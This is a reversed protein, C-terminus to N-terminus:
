SILFTGDSRIQSNILNHCSGCIIPGVNSQLTATLSNMCLQILFWQLKFEVIFHVTVACYAHKARSIWMDTTIEYWDVNNMARAKEQEYLNVM